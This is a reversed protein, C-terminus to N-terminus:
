ALAAPAASNEYIKQLWKVNLSKKFEEVAIESGGEGDDFGSFTLVKTEDPLMLFSSESWFGQSVSATEVEVFLAVFSSSRITVDITKHSASPSEKVDVIEIKGKGLDLSKFPAFFHNVDSCLSAGDVIRPAKSSCQVRLFCSTATCSTENASLLEDVSFVRVKKSEQIVSLM